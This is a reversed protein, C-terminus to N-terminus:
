KSSQKSGLIYGLLVGAGIAVSLSLLPKEQVTQVTREKGAQYAQSVNDQVVGKLEVAKDVIQHKISAASTSDTYEALLAKLSDIVNYAEQKTQIGKRQVNNSFNTAADKVDDKIESSLEAMDQKSEDAFQAVNEKLQAAKLDTEKDDISNKNLNFM